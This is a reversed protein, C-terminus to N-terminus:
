LFSYIFFKIVNESSTQQITALNKMTTLLAHM